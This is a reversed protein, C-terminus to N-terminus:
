AASRWRSSGRRRAPAASGVLSANSALRRQRRSRWYRRCLARHVPTKAGVASRRAARRWGFLQQPSLGHRRAIESVVAGPALTEEVIRAKDDVSWRRRGGLGNIIEVRRVPRSPELTLDLGSVHRGEIRIGPDASNVESGPEFPPVLVGCVILVTPHRRRLPLLRPWPHQRPSDGARGHRTRATQSRPQDEPDLHRLHHLIQLM